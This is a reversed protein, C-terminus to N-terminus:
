IQLCCVSFATLISHGLAQTHTPLVSHQRIRPPEANRPRIVKRWQLSFGQIEQAVQPPEM